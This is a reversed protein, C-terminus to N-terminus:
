VLSKMILYVESHDKSVPKLRAPSVGASGFDLPGPARARGIPVTPPLYWDAARGIKTM